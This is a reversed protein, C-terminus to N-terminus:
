GKWTCWIFPKKRAKPLQDVAKLVESLFTKGEASERHDIL